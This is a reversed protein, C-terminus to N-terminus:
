THAILAYTEILKQINERDASSLILEYATQKM